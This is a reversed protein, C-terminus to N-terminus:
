GAIGNQGPTGGGPGDPGDGSLMLWFFEGDDTVQLDVLGPVYVRLAEILDDKRVVVGAVNLPRLPVAQQSQGGGDV